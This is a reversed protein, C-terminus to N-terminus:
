APEITIVISKSTPTNSIRATSGLPVLVNTEPFYAAACGRPIDYPIALFLRAERQEGKWHSTLNVPQEPDLKREAMDERNLFVVRRENRIGRYRDDMGYITTNFQDHSRITMLVLQDDTLQSPELPNISFPAKGGEAFRREKAPNPLYFGGPKLARAEFNEFGPVTKGIKSRIKPYNGIFEKWSVRSKEGLVADALGAVIDPESRVNNSIPTLKGRSAHVIGMSNEVTVFQDRDKESRGLCPLILAQKGTVMHSRNLKTSVQVTLRCLQLGEAVVKVDPTASLFNGGLSVFVKAEGNRMAHISKVVDLGPERPPDFDFEGALADLFEPPANTVIGM